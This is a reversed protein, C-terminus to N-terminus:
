DCRECENREAVVQTSARAMWEQRQKESADLAARLVELEHAMDVVHIACPEGELLRPAIRQYVRQYADLSAAISPRHVDARYGLLLCGHTDDDTAGCHILIDTFQPVAQLWLMGPENWSYRTRYREYLRGFTRLKLEYRGTPIATEKPVKVARQLDELTFCCPEEGEFSLVGFTSRERAFLRRLTVIM